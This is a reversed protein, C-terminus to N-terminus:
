GLPTFDLNRDNAAGDTTVLRLWHGQGDGYVWIGFRKPKGPIERGIEGAQNLLAISVSSHGTQGTFDYTVKGSFAGFRIPNPRSVQSFSVSGEVVNRSILKLGQ